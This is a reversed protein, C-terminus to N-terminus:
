FLGLGWLVLGFGMTSIVAGLPLYWMAGSRNQVIEEEPLDSIMFMDELDADEEPVKEFVVNEPNESSRVGERPQAVGFVYTDDGPRILHQTFRRDGEDHDGNSGSRTAWSGSEVHIGEWDERELFENVRDPPTGGDPVIIPEEADTDLDYEAKTSPRILARGTGDDVHFPVSELGAGQTSWRRTDGGDNDKHVVFEEVEWAAVLCEEDTFPATITGEDTPKATGKIESQGMSVSEVDETPTEEVLNAQRRRDFAYKMTGIGVLLFLGGMALLMLSAM